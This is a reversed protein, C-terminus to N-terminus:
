QPPQGSKGAGSATGFQREVKAAPSVQTRTVLAALMSVAATAFALIAAQQEASFSTVFAFLLVLGADVIATLTGIVLAPERTTIGSGANFPPVPPQPPLAIESM